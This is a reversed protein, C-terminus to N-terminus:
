SVRLNKRMRGVLKVLEVVVLPTFSFLLVVLWDTPRLPVTDFFQQLFPVFLVMAQLAFSGLFAYVMYRNSTVGLQFISKTNSRVNSAHVLQLLALTAFTMTHAEAITRGWNLALIYIVFALLGIMAGQWLIRIGMGGAMVGEDAKRPPHDMVGKEPPEVGLALAPLGDTVLNIWLIQIATLPSGLGLLISTFITVIEGVNCSLLYHVAKRINSYITRGENIASVITAYNDDMLVMESAEKAVETGTIGMSVGIDARKLAPADNVGDGTMSVVHNHSKLAKVIDLKDEPSVRAFVTTHTVAERLEQEDMNQLEQGTIASDGEQWIGLESAIAVATAPHDGTIMMTRIGAGKSVEVADKVESRAPDIMSFYGVFVLDTETDAPQPDEPVEPWERIALALVREGKSALDTNIDLLQQREEETLSEVGSGKAIKTCRAVLLDPAGKTYSYRNDDIEYFTTMMKRGSDFPIEALRPYEQELDAQRLGAKAAAVVLAGETPDGIIEWCSEKEVLRADSDLVGGMLMWMMNRNALPVIKEGSADMFSGEPDYGIGSVGFLQDDTYISTVTMENKTLTGTKDSCIVTVTGLTEVAPLRRVVANRESMRTVGMALVITVVATLGEPVAAVALSISIMFIELVEMGRLWGALFVIAVIAFAAIGLIKGLEALRKQLPTTEQSTEQLLQAIKGLETEMGTTIVLGKGRGSTITTGMFAMNYQDGVPVDDGQELTKVGKEVPVSEGTLAAENTRLSVTEVLRIDAPLSDGAELLVVDGPVLTEVDVQCVEGDRLVKAIPTTMKKLAKLAEEAKHEQYVGLCANLVVIIMIVLSDIWEGLAGSIVAAIILIIVLVEKLQDIFMSLISRGPSEKL